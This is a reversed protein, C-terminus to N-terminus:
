FLRREVQNGYVTWETRPQEERGFLELYPGPSVREILARVAFPKKSHQSRPHLLWRRCTNDAFPMNGRIGLLLFEHSVRWYNGMGLQPKIWVLCSKFRFEWADMVLFAERLFGNTTWLHLHADTAALKAVPQNCIEDVTLTAYHNDAAGRAAKNTYSWPPDAYITAFRSKAVLLTELKTVISPLSDNM